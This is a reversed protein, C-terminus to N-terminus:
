QAAVQTPPTVAVRGPGIVMAEVVTNSQTNTIKVTENLAGDEMARGQATVTMLPTHITMIVLSRRPVLVPSRVDNERVPAGDALARRPTMGILRGEDALTGPDVRDARVKILRIDKAGIVDGSHLRRNLVPLEIMKVLRGSVRTRNANAQGAPIALTASFRQSAADYSLEEVGVTAAVDSPVHLRLNKTTLEVEAGEPPNYPALAEILAGNIEAQPVAQSDREIVAQVHLGSPKWGLGHAQAVRQLWRADFIAQRGPKPAYAITVDAKAGTNTFLDGLRVYHDNVTVHDRLLVPGGDPAAGLAAGAALGILTAVILALTRM